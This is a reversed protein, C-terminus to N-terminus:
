DARKVIKKRKEGNKKIFDPYLKDLCDPCIGHSFEAESHTEIYAELKNWFGKDDRIKKCSACIPILGKLTKIKSLAEELEVILREREEEAQKKETIDKAVGRFGELNGTDDIIPVGNVLLCVSEGNQNKHWVEWEEIAMKKESFYTLLKQVNDAEEPLMTWTLSKGMVEDVTYGLISEVKDSCYTYVGNQDVEWIWGAMTLVIDRFRKESERLAEDVLRKELIELEWHDGPNQSHNGKENDTFVDSPM